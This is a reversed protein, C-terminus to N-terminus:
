KKWIGYYTPAVNAYVKSKFQAEKNILGQLLVFGDLGCSLAGGEANIADELVKEDQTLVWKEILSDYLSSFETSSPLSWLPNPMYLPDQCDTPHTHSLDGSVVFFVRESLKEFFKRM